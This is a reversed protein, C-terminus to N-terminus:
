SIVKAGNAQFYSIIDTKKLSTRIIWQGTLGALLTIATGMQYIHIPLIRILLLRFIRTLTPPQIIRLPILDEKQIVFLLLLIMLRTLRILLHLRASVPM